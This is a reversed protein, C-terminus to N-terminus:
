EGAQSMHGLGSGVGFHRVVLSYYDIVFDCFFGACAPSKKLQPVHVRVMTFPDLTRQGVM